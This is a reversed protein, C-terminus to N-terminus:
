QQAVKQRYDPFHAQALADLATSTLKALRSLNDQDAQSFDGEYRDSVQLLGYNLGDTGVLPM